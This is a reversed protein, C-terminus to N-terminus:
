FELNRDQRSAAALIEARVRPDQMALAQVRAEGWRRFIEAARQWGSWGEVASRASAIQASFWEYSRALRDLGPHTISFTNM